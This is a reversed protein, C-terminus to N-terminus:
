AVESKGSCTTSQGNLFDLIDQFRWAIARGGMKQAQPFTSKSMRSYISSTSYGTMAKVEPLRLRREPHVLIDPSIAVVSKSEERSQNM